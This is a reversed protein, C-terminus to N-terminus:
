RNFKDSIVKVRAGLHRIFAQVVNMVNLELTDVRDGATVNDM